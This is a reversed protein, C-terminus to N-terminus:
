VATCGSQFGGSSRAQPAGDFTGVWDNMDDIAIFRVNYPAPSVETADMGDSPTLLLAILISSSYPLAFKMAKASM